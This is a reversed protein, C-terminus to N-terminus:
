TASNLLRRLSPLMAQVARTRHSMRNKEDAALLGFSLGFCRAPLGAAAIEAATPVFLPDYGFGGVGQELKLLSGFCEGRHFTAAQLPADSAPADNSAVPPPVLCLVCVFHAQRGDAPVSALNALLVERNRADQTQGVAPAGGYRASYLGPAGGLADVVLGSDDALSWLGTRAAAHRAKKWANAEFDAGDETAADQVGLEALSVVRLATALDPAYTALLARIEDVKHPNHTALCVTRPGTGPDETPMTM